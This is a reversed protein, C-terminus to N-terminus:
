PHEATVAEGPNFHVDDKEFARRKVGLDLPERPSSCMECYPLHAHNNFTCQSCSWAAEGEPQLSSDASSSLQSPSAKRSIKHPPPSGNGDVTGELHRKQATGELRGPKQTGVIPGAVNADERCERGRKPGFFSDIRGQRLQGSTGVAKRLRQLASQVRSENFQNGDVLFKHM